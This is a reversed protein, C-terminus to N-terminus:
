PVSRLAPPAWTQEVIATKPLYTRLVIYFDQGAPSPLWNAARTGEPQDNQLFLTLSRDDGYVL